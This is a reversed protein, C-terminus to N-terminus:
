PRGEDIAQGIEGQSLPGSFGGRCRALQSIRAEVGAEDLEARGLVEDLIMLIEGNLSRRNRRARIALRAHLHEPVNKLHLSAM